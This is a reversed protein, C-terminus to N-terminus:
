PHEDHKDHTDDQSHDQDETQGPPDPRSRPPDEKPPNNQGPAEGAHSKADSAAGSIEAGKDVGTADTTTALSSIADGPPDSHAPEAEVVPPAPASVPAGEPVTTTEDDSQESSAPEDTSKAGRHEPVDIGVRALTLAAIHQAPGPLAGAAAVGGTLFVTAAAGAVFAQLSRRSTTRRRPQEVDNDFAAALREALDGPAELEGSAPPGKAARLVAAVRGYGPPADDPDLGDLL